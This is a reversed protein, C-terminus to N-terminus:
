SATGRQIAPGAPGEASACSGSTSGVGAAGSGFPSNDRKRFRQDEREESREDETARCARMTIRRAEVQVRPLHEDRRVHLERRRLLLPQRIEDGRRVVRVEGE